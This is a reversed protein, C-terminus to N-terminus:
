PREDKNRKIPFVSFVSSLPRPLNESCRDLMQGYNEDISQVFRRRLCEQTDMPLVGAVRM